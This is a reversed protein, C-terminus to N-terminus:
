HLCCPGPGTDQPEGPRLRGASPESWDMELYLWKLVPGRPRRPEHRVTASGRGGGAGPMRAM